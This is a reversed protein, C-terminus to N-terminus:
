PQFIAINWVCPGGIYTMEICKGPQYIVITGGATERIFEPSLPFPLDVWAMADWEKTGPDSWCIRNANPKRETMDFGVAILYGRSDTYLKMQMGGYRVM